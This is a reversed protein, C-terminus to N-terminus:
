TLIRFYIKFSHMELRKIYNSQLPSVLIIASTMEPLMAYAHEIKIVVAKRMLTAANM